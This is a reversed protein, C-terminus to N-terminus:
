QRKSDPRFLLSGFGSALLPIKKKKYKVIHLSVFSSSLFPFSASSKPYRSGTNGMKERKTHIPILMNSWEIQGIQAQHKLVSQLSNIDGVLALRNAGGGGEQTVVNSTAFCITRKRM